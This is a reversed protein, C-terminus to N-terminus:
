ERNATPENVYVGQTWDQLTWPMEWFMWEYYCSKKFHEQLVRRKEPQQRAFRDMMAKQMAVSQAFDESAYLAIWQEYLPVNPTAEKYYQGIEQYLWPCPLISALAEAVDGNHVASYMHSVYNYAAPAPEFATLEEETVSLARFTTRHLELEAGHIFQAMSLFYDIDDEREAKAAALALVKTYHKLYYADQLMYMKFKEVPLSGDAIGRVFPHMFSAEWYMDTEQRVQECFEM